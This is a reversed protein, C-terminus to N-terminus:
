RSERCLASCEDAIERMKAVQKQDVMMLEYEKEQAASLSVKPNRFQMKSPVTTRASSHFERAGTTAILQALNNERVGGGAMIVIREGAREVLQHILSTGQIASNAQGSTLIRNCGTAVIDELAAFPDATMDFARHFNVSMPRALEVLGRCRERDVEGNPLLIGLSVGDVGLRQCLKIDEKMAAFERSSYLFDGGRPRILVCLEIGLEKRAHVIDGYSPTVGGESPNACLEVRDAGGAQAAIASELSYACIELIINKPQTM